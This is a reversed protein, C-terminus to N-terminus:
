QANGKKKERLKYKLLNSMNKSQDAFCKVDYRSHSLSFFLSGEVVGINFAM